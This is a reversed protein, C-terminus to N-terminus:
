LLLSSTTYCGAASAEVRLCLPARVSTGIKSEHSTVSLRISVVLHIIGLPTFILCGLHDQVIMTPGGASNPNEEHEHAGKEQGELM